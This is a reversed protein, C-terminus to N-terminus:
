EDEWKDHQHLDTVRNNFKQKTENGVNTKLGIFRKIDAKTLFVDEGGRKWLAGNIRQNLDVRRWVEKANDETIEHMGVFMMQFVMSNVEATWDERGEGDIYTLDEKSVRGADIAKSFDFTLAM